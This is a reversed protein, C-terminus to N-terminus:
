PAWRITFGGVRTALPFRRELAAVVEPELPASHIFHEKLAVASIGSRDLDEVLRYHFLTDPVLFDFIAPTPNRLNALFYVEPADPGAYVVGSPAHARLVEVVERYARAQRAAVRLGGRPLDLVAVNEKALPGGLGQLRFPVLYLAGFVLYMGITAALAPQRRGPLNQIVPVLALLVLAVVYCFYVPGALPYQVISCFAAVAGVLVYQSQRVLSHEQGSKPWALLAALTLVVLPTAQALSAWILEHVERHRALMLVVALVGVAVWHYLVALRGPLRTGGLLLLAMALTPGAALPSKPLEAGHVFRRVPLVFVGRLLEPVAHNAAYVAVFATVPVLVGLLYWGLAGLLRAACARSNGRSRVVAAAVVAVLAMGPLAFHYIDEWSRRSAGIALLAAAAALLPLGAVLQFAPRGSDPAGDAPQRAERYVLLLVGAGVFFLGSVKCLVSLGGAFGALVLWRRRPTELYALLAALGFTAFFLNYWSPMAAPYNPVSWLVGLLAVASAVLPTALRSAAYYLAPVWLMFVAFLAYRIALLHIGFLRFALANLYSLGGTYVEAFDRHPLEGDLVREASQALTGEDHDIWGRDLFYWLYLSSVLWVVALGLWWATRARGGSPATHAPGGVHM